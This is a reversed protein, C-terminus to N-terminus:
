YGQETTMDFLGIALLPLLNALAIINLSSYNKNQVNDM